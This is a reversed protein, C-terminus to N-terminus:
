TKVAIKTNKPVEQITYQYKGGEQTTRIATKAAGPILADGDSSFM